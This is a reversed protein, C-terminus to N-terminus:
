IDHNLVHFPHCLKAPQPLMHWFLDLMHLMDKQDPKIKKPSHILKEQASKKKEDNKKVHRTNLM